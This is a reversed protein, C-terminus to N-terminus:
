GKKSSKKPKSVKAEVKKIIEAGSSDCEVFAEKCHKVLDKDSADVSFVAGNMKKFFM